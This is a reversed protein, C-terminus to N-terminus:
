LAGYIFQIYISITTFLAIFLLLLCYYGIAQHLHEQQECLKHDKLSLANELNLILEHERARVCSLQHDTADIIDRRAKVFYFVFISKRKKTHGVVNPM